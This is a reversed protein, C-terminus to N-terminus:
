KESLPFVLILLSSIDYTQIGNPLTFNYTYDGYNLKGRDYPCGFTKYRDRARRTPQERSDVIISMSELCRKIDFIDM